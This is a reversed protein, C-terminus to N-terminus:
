VLIYRLRRVPMNLCGHLRRLIGVICSCKRVLAGIHAKFSLDVYIGSYKVLTSKTVALGGSSLDLTHILGLRGIIMYNSKLVNLRLRNRTLWSGVITLDANVREELLGWNWESYRLAMDDAFLRLNGFLTIQSLVEIFLLFLLPGL